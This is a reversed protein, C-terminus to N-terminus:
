GQTGEQEFSRLIRRNMEFWSAQEEVFKRGEAVAQDYDKLMRALGVTSDLDYPSGPLPIYVSDVM